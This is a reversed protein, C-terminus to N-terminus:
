FDFCSIRHNTPLRHYFGNSKYGLFKSNLLIWLYLLNFDFKRRISLGYLNLTDICITMRQIWDRVRATTCFAARFDLSAKRKEMRKKFVDM